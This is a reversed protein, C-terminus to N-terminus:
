RVKKKKPFTEQAIHRLCKRAFKGDSFPKSEKGLLHVVSYRALFTSFNDTSPKRLDNLDGKEKRLAGVCNKYQETHKWNYHRDTNYEKM